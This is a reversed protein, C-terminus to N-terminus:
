RSIGLDSVLRAALVRNAEASYHYDLESVRYRGDNADFVRTYDLTEIGDAALAARM